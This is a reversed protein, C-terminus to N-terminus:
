CGATPSEQPRGEKIKDMTDKTWDPRLNDRGPVCPRSAEDGGTVSLIPVRPAGWEQCRNLNDPGLPLSSIAVSERVARYLPKPDLSNITFMFRTRYGGHEEVCHMVLPSSAVGNALDTLHEAHRQRASRNSMGKYTSSRGKDICLLCQASYNVGERRCQPSTSTILAEPLPAAGQKRAEKTMEGLLRRSDCTACRPDNCSRRSAWPDNRGLLHILQDGGKEVVRVRDGGVVELYSDEAAQVSKQLVSDMTFPVLLTSITRREEKAEADAVPGQPPPDGRRKPLRNGVRVGVRGGWPRKAEPRRDKPGTGQDEKFIWGNEKRQRETEGGRRRSFWTQAASLKSRRRQIGQTDDRANLAPGGRLDIELKRYYHLLGSKLVGRVTPESYGSRRLKEIFKTVMTSKALLTLQRSSNRLRRFLEMALTVLKQRWTYASTARMVKTSSTGKEYFTWGVLDSGLGDEDEGPHRVWVQLDLVPVTRSGHCEPLDMTFSLWPVISDAADKMARMTVMEQTCGEQRDEEEWQESWEMVEGKWRTGLDLRTMILNIDDVYKAFLHVDVGAESIKHLFSVAWEDMIIRAVVSTLRLGIPAGGAQRYTRGGFQYQHHGFVTLVVVKAVKSMILKMQDSTLNSTDTPAWLSPEPDEEGGPAQRKKGLEPTTKGPRRGWKKLRRPVLDMMKESKVEKETWSSALFVLAARWDVNKFEVRSRKVFREVAEASGMHDLSPYLASVDLSGVMTSTLGEDRIKVEAQQLQALVEETSQDEFRPSVVSVLPELFDALADGARSSLGSAAAVM